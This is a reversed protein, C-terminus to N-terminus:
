RNTCSTKMWRRRGHRAGATASGRHSRSACRTWWRRRRRARRSAAAARTGSERRRGVARPVRGTGAGPACCGPRGAAPQLAPDRHVARERRRRLGGDRGRGGAPEVARVAPRRGRRALPRARGPPDRRRLARARRREAPPLRGSRCGVPSCRAPRPCATRGGSSAGAARLAARRARVPAAPVALADRELRRLPLRHVLYGTGAHIVAWCRHRRRAAARDAPAILPVADRRRARRDSCAPRALVVPRHHPDPRCSRVFIAVFAALPVPFAAGDVCRFPRGPRAGVAPPGRRRVCALSPGPAPPARRSWRGHSRAASRVRRGRRAGVGLLVAGLVRAPDARPPAAPWTRPGARSSSHSGAPTCASGCTSLRRALCTSRCVAPATAAPSPSTRSWRAACRPTGASPTTTTPRRHVPVARLGGAAATPAAVFAGTGMMAVVNFFASLQEYWRVARHHPQVSVLGGRTGHAAALMALAPGALTLTPTSSCCTRAARRARRRRACAWPKGLWGAPPDTPAARGHGRRRRRRRRHRRVLRRRGRDGRAAGPTAPRLSALLRPLDGGRRARPHRGVGVTRHSMTARRRLRRPRALAALDRCRHRRGATVSIVDAVLSVALSSGASSPSSAGRRCGPGGRSCTTAPRRSATSSGPTCCAPPARRLAGVGAAAPSASTPRGTCSAPM